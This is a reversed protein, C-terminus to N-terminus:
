LSTKLMGVVDEMGNGNEVLYGVLRELNDKELGLLVPRHKVIGAVAEVPLGVM